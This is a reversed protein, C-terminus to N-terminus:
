TSLTGISTKANHCLAFWTTSNFYPKKKEEVAALNMEEYTHMNIALYDITLKQANEASVFPPYAWLRAAPITCEKAMDLTVGDTTLMKVRKRLEKECTLKLGWTEEEGALKTKSVDKKLSKVPEVNFHKSIINEVISSFANVLEFLCQTM